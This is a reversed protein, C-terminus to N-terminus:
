GNGFRISFLDADRLVWRLRVPRRALVGVDAGHTWTVIRSIEDGVIQTCDDLGYGPLVKGDVDQIEVRVSGAAGTRYNIELQQGSFVLPKTLMEGGAWPANVSAFGDVRLLLREVHWTDQMYHRAVFTMMQQEGCPLIGTLPYNTRSVWNQAGPGPRIFSEM